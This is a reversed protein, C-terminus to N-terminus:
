HTAQVVVTQKDEPSRALAFYSPAGEVAGM